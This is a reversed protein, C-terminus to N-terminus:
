NSQAITMTNDARSCTITLAGESVKFRVVRREPTEDIIAPPGFASASQEITNLCTEYPVERVMAGGDAPAAEGLGDISESIAATTPSQAEPPANDSRGRLDLNPMNIEPMSIQPMSINPSEWTGFWSTDRPLLFAIAAIAAIGIAWGRWPPPEDPEPTHEPWNSHM